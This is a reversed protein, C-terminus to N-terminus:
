PGLNNVNIFDITNKGLYTPKGGMTLFYLGKINKLEVENYKALPHSPHVTLYHRIEAYPMSIINENKINEMSLAIDISRADLMKEIREQEVVQTEIFMDPMKKRLISSFYWTVSPSPSGIVIQNTELSIKKVDKKLIEIENLIINVHELTKKGNENLYIKNKVRDFLKCDLEKEFKSLMQSLSPQAVFLIEATRSINEQEAIVKFQKLQNLEM